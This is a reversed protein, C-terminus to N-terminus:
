LLSSALFGAILAIVSSVTLWLIALLTGMAIEDVVRM